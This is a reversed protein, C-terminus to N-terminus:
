QSNVIKFSYAISAFTHFLWICSKVNIAALATDLQPNCLFIDVVPAAILECFFM